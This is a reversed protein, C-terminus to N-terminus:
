LIFLYTILFVVVIFAVIIFMQSFSSRSLLDNVRSLNTRLLDDADHVGEEIDDMTYRSDRILDGIKNASDKVLKLKSSLVDLSEHNSNRMMDVTASEWQNGSMNRRQNISM